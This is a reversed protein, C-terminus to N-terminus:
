EDGTLACAVAHMVESLSAEFWERGSGGHRRKDQLINHVKPELYGLDPCTARTVIRFPHGKELQKARNPINKARGVKLIGPMASNAFVYLHQGSSAESGDEDSAGTTAAAEEEEEEDLEETEHAPSPLEITRRRRVGERYYDRFCDKCWSQFGYRSHPGFMDLALTCKCRGCGKQPPLFQDSSSSCVTAPM